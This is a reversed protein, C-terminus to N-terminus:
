EHLRESKQSMRLRWLTPLAEAPSRVRHSGSYTLLYDDLELVSVEGQRTPPEFRYARVVPAAAEPNDPLPSVGEQRAKHFAQRKTEHQTILQLPESAPEPHVRVKVIEPLRGSSQWVHLGSEGEFFPRVGPGVLKLVVHVAELPSRLFDQNQRLGGTM